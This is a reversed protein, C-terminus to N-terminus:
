LRAIDAQPVIPKTIWDMMYHLNDHIM